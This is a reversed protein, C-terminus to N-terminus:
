AGRLTLLFAVVDNLEDESFVQGYPPMPSRGWDKHVDRLDSKFFSHLRGAVDRFQITFTDENIRVGSLEKGDRTRVRVLLFNETISINSRYASASKFVDADPELLSRRLHAAGRRRAIDTLDPGFIGGQGNVAHCTACGGKSAYLEAGRRANGPLPEVPRQGLQLVWAAVAQADSDTMRTGPMETGEIGRRILLMLSERDTARFLQPVALAPGKGGEGSAGHCTACSRAFLQDGRALDETSRDISSQAFAPTIAAFILVELVGCVKHRPVKLGRPKQRKRGFLTPAQLGRGGLIVVAGVTVACWANAYRDFGGTEHAAISARAV